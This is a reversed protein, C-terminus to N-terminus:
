CRNPGPVGEELRRLCEPVDILRTVTAVPWMGDRASEGPSPEYRVHPADYAPMDPVHGDLAGGAVFHIPTLGAARAAEVDSRLNDGVHAAQAAPVGAVALAHRFLAADRKTVGARTSLAIPDFADSLEFAALVDFLRGDMDSVIGLRRGDNRLAALTERVGPALEWPAASRFLEFVEAFFAEFRESSGTSEFSEVPAFTRTVVEHWWQRELRPLDEAPAGPFCAGPMGRMARRFAADIAAPPAALGHRAAVPAYVAGVSGRVRLLTDIADFFVLSFRRAMNAAYDIPASAHFLAAAAVPGQPAGAPEAAM